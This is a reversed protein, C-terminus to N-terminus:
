LAENQAGISQGRLITPILNSPHIWKLWGGHEIAGSRHHFDATTGLSLLRIADLPIGLVSVAEVVGVMSPNNAWVGGDILAIGDGLSLAIIGGTSTGVILDFHDVVRTAFDEEIAALIAASFM